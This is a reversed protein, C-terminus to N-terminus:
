PNDLEFTSYKFPESVDLVLRTHDPARWVLIDDITATLAPSAILVAGLILALAIGLRRM